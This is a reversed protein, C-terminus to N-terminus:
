LYFMIKNTGLIAATEIKSKSRKYKEEITGVIEDIDIIIRQIKESSSLLDNCLITIPITLETKKNKFQTLNSKETSVEQKKNM